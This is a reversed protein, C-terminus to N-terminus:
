VEKLHEKLYNIRKNDRVERSKLLKDNFAAGNETIYVPIKTYEGRLRLILDYLAEPVIEWDMETKPRSGHIIEFGLEADGCYKVLERNYYNVGLFDIETSIKKLDGKEIFNFNDTHEKYIEKMDEPYKAKFLPDLFWRNLYGDRRKAAEADGESETAPYVPILNLTIGIKGNKFNFKRFAEVANGHSLLIHHAAANAESLSNHGPAHNGEYYSFFSSCLPENHTIWLSVSDGLEKFVRTAYEEFWKVSDRNLWGGMNYAWMPMDWHYLTVVPKINRQTLESILNKYFQMGEPNYKGKEPFIRPWSISFRYADLGIGEMLGVDEKYRHYHDCAVDGSDGRYTKGQTKSFVDWISPTRGDERVAGEIQYSSTAAGFLFGNGFKLKM